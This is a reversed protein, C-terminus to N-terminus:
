STVLIVQIAIVSMMDAIYSAVHKLGCRQLPMKQLLEHVYCSPFDCEWLAVIASFLVTGVTGWNMSSLALPVLDLPSQTLQPYVLLLM